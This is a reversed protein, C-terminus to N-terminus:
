SIEMRSYQSGAHLNTNGSSRKETYIFLSNHRAVAFINASPHWTGKVIKQSMDIKIPEGLANTIPGQVRKGRYYRTQGVNKGRKDM